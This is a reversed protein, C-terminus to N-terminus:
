RGSLRRVNEQRRLTPPCCICPIWWFEKKGTLHYVIGSESRPASDLAWHLLRECATVLEPDRTEKAAWLLAEGACCPDTVGDTVGITAVRGDAMSRYAAEKALAIVTDGEGLELFAQMTVGQEWSHRQMCLLALKAKDLM